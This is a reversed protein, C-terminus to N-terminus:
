SMLLHVTCDSWSTIFSNRLTAVDQSPPQSPGSFSAKSSTLFCPVRKARSYSCSRPLRWGKLVEWFSSRRAASSARGLSCIHSKSFEATGNTNRGTSFLNCDSDPDVSKAKWSILHNSGEQNWAHDFANAGSPVHHLVRCLKYKHLVWPPGNFSHPFRM